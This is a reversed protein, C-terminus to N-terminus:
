HVAAFIHQEHAFLIHLGHSRRSRIGSHVLHHPILLTQICLRAQHFTFLRLRNTIIPEHKGAYWNGSKKPTQSPIRTPNPNLTKPFEAAEFDSILLKIFRNNIIGKNTLM